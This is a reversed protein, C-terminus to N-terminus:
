SDVGCDDCNIRVKWIVAPPHRFAKRLNVGWWNWAYRWCKWKIEKGERKFFNTEQEVRVDRLQKREVHTWSSFFSFVLIYENPKRRELQKKKESSESVSLTWQGAFDVLERKRADGHKKEGRVPKGPKSNAESKKAVIIRFCPNSGFAQEIHWNLPCCPLRLPAMGRRQGRHSHTDSACPSSKSCSGVFARKWAWGAASLSM